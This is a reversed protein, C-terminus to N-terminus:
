NLKIDPIKINLEISLHRIKECLDLALATYWCWWAKADVSFNDRIMAFAEDGYEWSNTGQVYGWAKFLLKKQEKEPKEEIDILSLLSNEMTDVCILAIYEDTLERM